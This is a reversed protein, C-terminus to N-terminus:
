YINVLLLFVGVTGELLNILSNLSHLTKTKKSM